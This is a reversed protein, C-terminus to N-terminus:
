PAEGRGLRRHAESFRGASLACLVNLEGALTVACLVEAFRVSSQGPTSGSRHVGMLGLAESQPALQTGGGVTGVELSPMTIGFYLDGGRDEAWTYGSSSEVVEAIDQGTALFVAAVINAFHANFKSSGAFASGLLNKRTNLDCVAAATTHLVTQLVAAPILVDASVSKGRGFLNNVASEKKDSCLNGSVAICRVNPYESAIMSTVADAAITVMNMGMADGSAMEIRLWINNAVTFPLVRQVRGFHTTANAVECIHTDNEEVWRVFDLASTISDAVFLPARTMGDHWVTATVAGSQRIAKVGRGVSAILSGETTALPIYHQDLGDSGHVPLPGVVGVPVTVAGVVNEANRGQHQMNTPVMGLTSLPKGTIRELAQRRIAIARESGVERELERSGM